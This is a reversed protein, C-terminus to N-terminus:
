DLLQINDNKLELDSSLGRLQIMKVDQLTVTKDFLGPDVPSM